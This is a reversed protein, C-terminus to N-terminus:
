RTTSTCPFRKNKPLFGHHRARYSAPHPQRCALPCSAEPSSQISRSTQVKRRHNILGKSPVQSLAGRTPCVLFAAFCPTHLRGPNQWAAELSALLFPPMHISWPPLTRPSQCWCCCCVPDLSAKLCFATRLGATCCGSLVGRPEAPLPTSHAYFTPAGPVGQDLGLQLGEGRHAGSKEM